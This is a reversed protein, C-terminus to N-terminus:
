YHPPREQETAEDLPSPSLSRIQEYLLKMQRQLLDIQQQQDVVTQNLTDLLDDQFAVKTELDSLRNNM